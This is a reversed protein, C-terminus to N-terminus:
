ESFPSVDKLFKNNGLTANIMCNFYIIVCSTLLFIDMLGQIM